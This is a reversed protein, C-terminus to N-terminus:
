KTLGKRERDQLVSNLHFALKDAEDPSLWFMLSNRGITDCTFDIDCLNVMIEDIGVPKDDSVNIEM